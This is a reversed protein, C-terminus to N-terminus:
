NRTLTFEVLNVRVHGPMEVIRIFLRVVRVEAMHISIYISCRRLYVMRIDFRCMLLGVECSGVEKIITVRITDRRRDRGIILCVICRRCTITTTRRWCCRAKIGNITVEM